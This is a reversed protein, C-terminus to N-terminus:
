AAGFLVTVLPVRLCWILCTVLLSFLGGLLLGSGATGSAEDRKGAGISRAVVATGGISFAQFANMLISNLTSIQGVGALAETSIFGMVFINVNALLVAAAQEVLMGPLMQRLATDTEEHGDADRLFDVWKKLSM